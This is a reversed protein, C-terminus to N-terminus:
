HKHNEKEDFNIFPSKGGPGAVGGGSVGSAEEIGLDQKLRKKVAALNIYMPHGAGYERFIDQMEIEADAIAAEKDEPAMDKTEHAWDEPYDLANALMMASTENLKQEKSEKAFFANSQDKPRDETFPAGHKVLDKRGGDLLTKHGKSTRRKAIPQWDGESMMQEVISILYEAESVYSANGGQTEMGDDQIHTADFGLRIRVDAPNVIPYGLEDKPLFRTLDEGRDLAERFDTANFTGCSDGTASVYYDMINGPIVGPLLNHTPRRGYLHFDAFRAYDPKNTKDCPKDSAVPVILDGSRPIFNAVAGDMISYSTQVPSNFPSDLLLVKDAIGAADVYLEWVDKAMEKTITHGGDTKRPLPSIFILVMDVKELVKIVADLHGAQPPKFKGPFVAIKRKISPNGVDLGVPEDIAELEEERLEEEPEETDVQEPKERFSSDLGRTIFKGTIKIPNDVGFVKKSRLVIGEHEIDTGTMDGIPSTLASLVVDGLLETAYFMIAGSIALKANEVSPDVLLQQVPKGGIISLFVLKSLATINKQVDKDYVKIMKKRPNVIEKDNLWEALSKTIVKEDIQIPIQKQLIESFNVKTGERAFVPMVTYFDDFGYRQAIPKIVDRVQSLAEEDYPIETGVDKSLEMKKKTPNYASPRELGPRYNGRIEKEYYQNIGHIAIFDQDYKVVNTAKRVYECNFYKTSDDWMDLAILQKKLKPLATNFVDLMEKGSIIMGHGPAFRQPLTTTTLGAIDLQGGTGQTSARDLRFEKGEFGGQEVDVLKVNWNVGDFKVSTSDSAMLKEKAKRTAHKAAKEFFVLLDKGNDVSPLNFPHAMHGGGGGELLLIPNRKKTM